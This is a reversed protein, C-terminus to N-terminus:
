APLLFSDALFGETKPTEQVQCDAKPLIKLSDPKTSISSVKEENKHIAFESSNSLRLVPTYMTCYGILWGAWFSRLQVPQCLDESSKLRARSLQNCHLTFIVDSGRYEGQRVTYVDSTPNWQGLGSPQLWKSIKLNKLCTSPAPLFTVPYSPCGTRESTAATTGM